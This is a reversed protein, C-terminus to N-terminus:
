STPRVEKAPESYQALLNDSHASSRRVELLRASGASMHRAHGKYDVSSARMLTVEPEPEEAAFEPSDVESEPTSGQTEEAAYENLLGEASKARPAQRILTPQRGLGAHWTEDFKQVDDAHKNLDLPESKGPSLAGDNAGDFAGPITRSLSSRRAKPLQSAGSPRHLPKGSLWSAESDVSALSQSLMMDPKASTPIDLEMSPKNERMVARTPIPSSARYASQEVEVATDDVRELTSMQNFTGTAPPAAAEPSQVRSDPPSLPLEPLDERFKSMTRQPTTADARRFTRQTVVPPPQKRALFSERSTNSFESPTSRGQFTSSLKRRTGKSFFATWSSLRQSSHDSAAGTLSANEQIDTTAERNLLSGQSISQRDAARPAPSVPPSLAAQIPMEPQKVTNTKIQRLPSRAPIAPEPEVDSSADQMIDMDKEGEFPNRIATPSVTQSKPDAFPDTARQTRTGSPGAETEEGFATRTAHPDIGLGDVRSASASASRVYEETRAKRAEEERQRDARRQLRRELRAQEQKRKRERRRKDREMLEHLGRADLGDALEDIRKKDAGEEEELIPPRALPNPRQPQKGPAQRPHADYKITPRPSLAALMGIKFSNQHPVNDVDPLSEPLPLSVQSTPRGLNRMPGSPVNRTERQLPGSGYLSQPRRPIPIPSTSMARVQRERAYDEAKRKSSKRRAITSDQDSKRAYLTPPQRIVNFNEPGLSSQSTPNQQYLQKESPPPANRSTRRSTPISVPATQSRQQEGHSPVRNKSLRRSKEPQDKKVSGRTNGTTLTGIKELRDMNESPDSQLSQERTHKSADAARQKKGGGFPWFGM